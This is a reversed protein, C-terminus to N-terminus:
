RFMVLGCTLSIPKIHHWFPIDHGALMYVDFIAVFAVMSLPVVTKPFGKYSVPQGSKERFKALFYIYFIGWVVFIILMLIHVLNIATDIEHAFTSASEPLWLGYDDM